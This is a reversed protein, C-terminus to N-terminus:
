HVKGNTRGGPADCYWASQRAFAVLQPLAARIEGLLRDASVMGASTLLQWRMEVLAGLHLALDMGILGADAIPLFVQWRRAPRDMEFINLMAKAIGTAAGAANSFWGIAQGLRDPDRSAAEADRTTAELVAASAIVRGLRWGIRLPDLYRPPQPLIYGTGPTVALGLSRAQMIAERAEDLLTAREAQIRANAAAAFAERAAPDNDVLLTGGALVEYIVPLNHTNLAFPMLIGPEGGLPNANSISELYERIEDESTGDAFVLGLEFDTDAFSAGTTYRGYLYAAAVERQGAFFAKLASIAQV